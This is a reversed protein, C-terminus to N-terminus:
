NPLSYRKQKQPNERHWYHGTFCIIIVRENNETEKENRTIGTKIQAGSQFFARPYDANISSSARLTMLSTHHIFRKTVRRVHIDDLHHNSLTLVRIM